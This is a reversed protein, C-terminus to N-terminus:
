KQSLCRFPGRVGASHREAAQLALEIRRRPPVALTATTHLSGAAIQAGCGVADYGDAPEGVQYDGDIHFLRGGIGVLFEGGTERENDKRAWGGDKLCQRLADIFATAMFRDLDASPAPPAFTYRILQGMRFSTTFGFLYPGNRFVKRDARITLDYGAVGASDAGIYVRHDHVLGAIATM